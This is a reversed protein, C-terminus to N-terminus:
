GFDRALVARAYAEALAIGAIRRLRALERRREGTCVTAELEGDLFHLVHQLGCVTEVSAAGDLARVEDVVRLLRRELGFRRELGLM